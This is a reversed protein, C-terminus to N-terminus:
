DADPGTQSTGPVPPVLNAPARANQRLHTLRARQSRPYTAGGRAADGPTCIVWAIGPAPIAAPTQTSAGPLLALAAGLLPAAGRVMVHLLAAM